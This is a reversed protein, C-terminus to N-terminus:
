NAKPLAAYIMFSGGSTVIGVMQLDRLVERDQKVLRQLRSLMDHLGKALKHNDQLWKTANVGEFLPGTESAGFEYLSRPDFILADHRPPRYSKDTPQDAVTLIERGKM